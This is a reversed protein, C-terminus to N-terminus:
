IKTQLKWLRFSKVVFHCVVVVFDLNGVPSIICIDSYYFQCTNKGVLLPVSLNIFLSLFYSFPPEHVAPVKVLVPDDKHKKQTMTSGSCCKQIMEWLVWVSRYFIKSRKEQCYINLWILSGTPLVPVINLWQLGEQFMPFHKQQDYPNYNHQNICGM